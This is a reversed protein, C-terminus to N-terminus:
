KKILPRQDKKKKKGKETQIAVQKTQMQRCYKRIVILLLLLPPFFFLVFCTLYYVLPM